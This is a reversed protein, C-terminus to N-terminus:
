FAIKEPVIKKPYERGRIVRVKDAIKSTHIEKLLKRKDNAEIEIGNESIAYWNLKRKNEGM